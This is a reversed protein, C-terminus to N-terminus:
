LQVLQPYFSKLSTEEVYVTEGSDSFVLDALSRGQLSYFFFFSYPPAYAIYIPFIGISTLIGCKM